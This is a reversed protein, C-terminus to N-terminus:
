FLHGKGVVTLDMQMCSDRVQAGNLFVGPEGPLDWTCEALHQQAGLRSTVRIDLRSFGAQEMYVGILVGNYRVGTEARYELTVIDGQPQDFTTAITAAAGVMSAVAGVLSEVTEASTHSASVIAATATMMTSVSAVVTAKTAVTTKPTSLDGLSPVRKMMM